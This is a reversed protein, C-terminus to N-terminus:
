LEEVVVSVLGERIAEMFVEAVESVSMLQAATQYVPSQLAAAMGLNVGLLFAASTADEAQVREVDTEDSTLLATLQYNRM